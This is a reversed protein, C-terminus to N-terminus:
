YKEYSYSGGVVYGAAPEWDISTTYVRFSAEQLGFYSDPYDDNGLGASLSITLRENPTVDVQGTFSDRNRDAVDYHRLAPQEGIEVLGEEDLGDGTRKFHDYHARFTMWQN